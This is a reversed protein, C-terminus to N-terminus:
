SRNAYAQAPELGTGRVVDSGVTGIGGESNSTQPNSAELRSIMNKLANESVKSVNLGIEKAKKLVNEDIRISTVIRKGM